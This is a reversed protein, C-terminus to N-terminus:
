AAEDPGDEFEDALACRLEWIGEPLGDVTVSQLWAEIANLLVLEDARSLPVPRTAGVAEFAARIPEANDLHRLEHLLQDRSGWPLEITARSTSVAVRDLRESV